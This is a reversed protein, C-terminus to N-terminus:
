SQWNSYRGHTDFGLAFQRAPMDDDPESLFAPRQAACLIDEENIGHKLASPNVRM